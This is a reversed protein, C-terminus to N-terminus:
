VSAPPVGRKFEETFELLHNEYIKRPTTNYKNCLVAALGTVEGMMGTTKMVRVTGLAVHTVSINRGAMMLNEINKSYLCRFPITYPNIKKKRAITRFTEEKLGDIVKPYHLDFTWTTTVCADPFSKNNEIDQQQLVIDGMLRRSERKGGIYSVWELRRSKYEDKFKSRNKLFSWNGYIVRFGYDRIFEAESIQNRGLGLEWNWDGRIVKQCTKENFQVAWPTEPFEFEGKRKVSYWMVSTGMTLNDVKAPALTEGTEKRAERGMRYEAGALFGITADGTCDAFVPASLKISKGTVIEHATVSSIKNGNMEVSTAHTNLFLEINSENKVINTKLWDKYREKPRANQRFHPDLENVVNGIEPYPPLKIGGGLQVRVESSNNGGVLPRDHILAVRLGKRSAAVSACIGAIGGGAVIFDFEGKNEPEETNGLLRNRFSNLESLSNPPILQSDQSFIIADCRGEFGTLDHLQLKCETKSIDIEGGYQWHWEAKETGFTTELPQGNVILKFKGPSQYVNGNIAVENKWLAAWDRTRVWVKYIGTKPLTIKTVADEVPIGKGHALLFPSGMYDMFQQDIVWGGLNDFSEAEIIITNHKKM